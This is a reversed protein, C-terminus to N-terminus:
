RVAVRVEVHTPPTHPATITFHFRMGDAVGAPVSLRVRHPLHWAGTGACGRCPEMWSEGRGGCLPCTSRVPVELPVTVGDFAERRSLLIEASLPRDAAEDAGLFADRIRDVVDAISPFDIAIEDAFWGRHDTEPAPPRRRGALDQDYSRRRQEDSLTEYAQIVQRLPLTTDGGTLDPHLQRVLRRYARKIEDPRADESVGLVQYYTRM